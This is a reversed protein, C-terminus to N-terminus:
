IIQLPDKDANSIIVQVKSEGITSDLDKQLNQQLPKLFGRETNTHGCILVHQGKEIAALTEHHSLEGTVLLHVKESLFKFVSSGSGACVAISTVSPLNSRSNTALQVQDTHKLNPIGAPLDLGSKVRAIM